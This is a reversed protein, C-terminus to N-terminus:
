RCYIGVALTAARAAPSQQPGLQPLDSQAFSVAVTLLFQEIQRATIAKIRNMGHSLAPSVSRGPRQDGVGPGSTVREVVMGLMLGGAGLVASGSSGPLAGSLLYLAGEGPLTMANSLVSSRDPMRQLASYSETFAGSGSGPRTHALTASLYPKLSTHLVALDLSPHLALITAEVVRGDKVVYLASCDVVSHRATLVDGAANLFVGSASTDQGLVFTFVGPAVPAGGAAAQPAETAPVNAFALVTALAVFASYGSSFYIKLLVCGDNV